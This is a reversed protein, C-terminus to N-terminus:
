RSARSWMNQVPHVKRDTSSRHYQSNTNLGLHPELAREELFSRACKSLILAEKVAKTSRSKHVAGNAGERTWKEGSKGKYLKFLSISTLGHIVNNLIFDGSQLANYHLPAQSSLPHQLPIQGPWTSWHPNLQSWPLFPSFSACVTSEPCKSVPSHITLFAHPLSHGKCPKICASPVHEIFSATIIVSITTKNNHNHLAVM